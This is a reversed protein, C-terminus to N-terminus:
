QLETISAIHSVKYRLREAIMLVSQESISACLAISLSELDLCSFCVDVNSIQIVVFWRTISDVCRDNLSSFALLRLYKLQRMGDNPNFLSCVSSETFNAADSLHLHNISHMKQLYFNLITLRFSEDQGSLYDPV